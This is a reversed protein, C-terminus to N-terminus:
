ELRTHKTEPVVFYRDTVQPGQDLIKDPDSFQELTDARLAPSIEVPFPAGHRALPVSDTLPIAELEHVARLQNNLQSRLYEAEAPELELAALSVLRSFVEPTIEDTM